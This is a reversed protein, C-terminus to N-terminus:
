GASLAAEAGVRVGLIMDAAREAIMLVAANINGNPLDPMVSADVVRLGDVGHVRLDPSVVTRPDNAAGMRCTGAPHHVTIATKRIHADIDDPTQCGQGPSIEAKIFPRMSPAAALSRAIAFGERLVQWDHDTSLFNQRIAPAAGPDASKLTVDGRATPRTLVLRTAFGDQFPAKFPALYPWSALPAATFLFQIDPVDTALTSRLFATVGGPM